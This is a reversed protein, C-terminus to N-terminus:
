LVKLTNLAANIDGQLLGIESQGDQRYQFSYRPRIDRVFVATGDASIEAIWLGTHSFSQPAPMNEATPHKSDANAVRMGAAEPALAMLAIVALWLAMLSTLVSLQTRM